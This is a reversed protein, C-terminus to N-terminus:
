HPTGLCYVFTRRGCGGEWFITTIATVEPRPRGSKEILDAAEKCRDEYVDCVVPYEVDPHELYVMELTGMGRSGLGLLQWDSRRNWKIKREKYKKETKSFVSQADMGWQYLRSQWQIVGMAISKSVVPYYMSAAMDYVDIPVETKNRISEVFDCFVLWDMGDHGSKIGEKLYKKWMPHEYKERYEKWMVGTSKGTLIIELTNKVKWICLVMIRWLCVKRERYM